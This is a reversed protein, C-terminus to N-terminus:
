KEKKKKHKASKKGKVKHKEKSPKEKGIAVNKTEAAVKPQSNKSQVEFDLQREDVNVKTLRVTVAQGLQYQKNTHEGILTYTVANFQYFDDILTSIHVLGEVSNDLQVFFGFSTVGSIIGDFIEGEFPLMYEVKKMDVSEREAEEAIKERVSATEAYDNMKEALQSLRKEELKDHNHLCEKIVRHIALDPYRRIPSTFHSYYKASLGFHGLPETSYRAHQMSRLLVSNITKEEKTGRIAEVVAQYAKPHIGGALGKLSYGFVQLFKNVDALSDAKPEEHVRYLFPVDLWFYHESVTENALLMFEEIIQDALLRERWEIHLPKGQEDLLVKSEPMDFEIAGRRLRKKRLIEELKAMEELMPVISSYENRLAEDKDVIIKNVNKYTMRYNVHIVSECIEHSVVVGKKDIEMFCTMALRDEGANLSCIGNSLRKPLMPIVRDVLYVSTARKLAEKDLVSDEPVYHGVDAIHVGLRYHGNALIEVTVADDLDKADDGDITIMLLDRLDRRGALEQPTIAEPIQESAELVEAPFGQPLNHKYIVSIVDIGPEGKAGIIEIVRGEASRHNEPYRTIEVIVKMGTRANMSDEKAIFVDSGFRKDDAVVFGFHKSGEYTGLVTKASREIIRIVEGEARYAIKTFSDVGAPKKVRAIVKDNHMAGHLDNANIYLDEDAGEVALFGFGKPHRSLRGSVLNLQKLLGYRKKRTYILKGENELEKLLVKLTVLAEVSDLALAEALESESLPRTADEEMFSIIQEKTIM